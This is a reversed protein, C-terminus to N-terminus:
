AGKKLNKHFTDAGPFIVILLPRRLPLANFRQFPPILLSHRLDFSSPIVFSLHRTAFIASVNVFDARAPIM